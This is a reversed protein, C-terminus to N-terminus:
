ATTNLRMATAQSNEAFGRRPEDVRTVALLVLLPQQPFRRRRTPSEGIANLLAVLAHESIRDFPVVM